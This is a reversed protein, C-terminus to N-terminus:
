EEDMSLFEVIEQCNSERNHREKTIRLCQESHIPILKPNNLYRQMVALLSETSRPEVLYGNLGDIVSEPIAGVNSALIPLGQSMAELIVNPFGESYSPLVLVHAKRIIDHIETKNKWGFLITIGYGAKLVKAKVESFSGGDGVVWLEFKNNGCEALISSAEILEFIGKDKEIRGVFLFKIVDTNEISIPKKAVESDVPLWNPIIKIKNTNLGLQQLHLSWAQGQVLLFDIRNLFKGIVRGFLSNPTVCLIRANRFFFVLKVRNKKVFFTILIREFISVVSGTFFVIFDLEANKAFNRVKMLRSLIGGIKSVRGIRGRGSYISNVIVVEDGRSKLYHILGNAATIQGGPKFDSRGTDQPVVLLFKAM